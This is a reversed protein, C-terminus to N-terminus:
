AFKGNEDRPHASEEWAGGAASAHMEAATTHKAEEKSKGAEKYAAAAKLNAEGAAKHEAESAAHSSLGIAAKGLKGAKSGLAIKSKLVEPSSAAGKDVPKTAEVEGPHEKNSEALHATEMGAHFAAQQTHEEIRKQVDAANRLDADPFPKLSVEGAHEDHGGAALSQHDRAYAEHAEAHSAHESAKHQFRDVDKQLTDAIDPKGKDRQEQVLQAYHNARREEDAQQTRHGEAAMSHLQAAKAHDGEGFHAEHSEHAALDGINAAILLAAAKSHMLKASKDDAAQRDHSRRLERGHGQRAAEQDSLKEGQKGTWFEPSNTYNIMGGTYKYSSPLGKTFSHKQAAHARVDNTAEGQRRARGSYYDADGASAGRKINEHATKAINDRMRDLDSKDEREEDLRKKPQIAGRGGPSTQQSQGESEFTGGPAHEVTVRTANALSQGQIANGALNGVAEPVPSEGKANVAPQNPTQNEPEQTMQEHAMDLSKQMAEENVETEISWKGSGFRSLLVQEAPLGLTVYIQDSQAVQLRIAADEALSPQDPNNWHVHLDGKIGLARQGIKLVTELPKTLQRQYERVSDYWQKTTSEGTANMGSPEDGFLLSVPMDAASACRKMLVELIGDIGGFATAKREFDEGESDIMIARAASRMLDTLAVRAQVADPNSALQDILGKFKFVAQNADVMMNSVAQFSQGFEQLVDYPRQLVSLGWGRLIQRLRRDVKVGDYRLLRTEHILAVMATTPDGIMYLMPQGYKPDNPDTYYRNVHVYRRDMPILFNFGDAEDLDTEEWPMQGDAVGVWEVAGGFARALHLSEMMATEVHNEEAWMQLEEVKDEDDIGQIEYGARFAAKPLKEVIKAAIDNGYYLAMLEPDPIPGSWNYFSQMVKDRSTGLGTYSNWWQDARPVNKQVADQKLEPLKLGDRLAKSLDM